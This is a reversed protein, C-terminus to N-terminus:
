KEPSIFSAVANRADKIRSRSAKQKFVAVLVAEITSNEANKGGGATLIREEGAVNINFDLM